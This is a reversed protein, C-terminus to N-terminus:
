LSVPKTTIARKMWTVHKQYKKHLMKHTIFLIIILWIWSTPIKNCAKHTIKTLQTKQINGSLGYHHGRSQDLKASSTVLWLGRFKDPESIRTGCAWFVPGSQKVAQLKLFISLIQRLNSVFWLWKMRLMLDYNIQILNPFYLPAM